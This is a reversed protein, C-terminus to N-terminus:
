AEKNVVEIRYAVEKTVYEEPIKLGLKKFLTQTISVSDWLVDAPINASKLYERLGQEDLVTKNYEKRKVKVFAGEIEEKQELAENIKAEIINLAQKLPLYADVLEEINKSQVQE